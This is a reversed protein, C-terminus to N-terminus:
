RQPEKKQPQPAKKSIRFLPLTLPPLGMRAFMNQIFERWYPWANFTGNVRAFTNLQSRSAFFGKPLIYKLEFGAKVYVAPEKSDRPVIQAEMVAFVFFVGTKDPDIVRTSTKLVVEPKKIEKPSRITTKVAADVLRIDGIKVESVLRAINKVHENM